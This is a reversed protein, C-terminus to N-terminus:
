DHLEHLTKQIVVMPSLRRVPAVSNMIASGLEADNAHIFDQFTLMTGDLKRVEEVLDCLFWTRAQDLYDTRVYTDDSGFPQDKTLQTQDKSVLTYKIVRVRFQVLGSLDPNETRKQSYYLYMWFAGNPLTHVRFNYFPFALRSRGSKKWEELLEPFWGSETPYLYASM